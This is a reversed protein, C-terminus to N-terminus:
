SGGATAPTLRRGLLAAGTAICLGAYLSYSLADSAADALAAAIPAGIMEGTPFSAGVLAAVPGPAVGAREAAESLLTMGPVFTFTACGGIVVMVVVALLAVTGPLWLLATGAGLSVLGIGALGRPGSRDCLRGAAPSLMAAVVGALLFTAGIEFASAGLEDLRLPVLLFIAGVVMGPLLNVGTLRRVRGKRLAAPVSTGAETAPRGPPQVRALALSVAVCLVAVAVFTGAVSVTGALTGIMPGILTGVVSAGMVGGIAQGRRAPGAAAIMWTLLVAWLCGAAVGQVFRVADLVAISTALGFALTAAALVAFAAVTIQRLTARAVVWAGLLAGPLCGAAYAGALVGAASKSIGLEAKFYPLLPAAASYLASELAFAVGALLVVRRGLGADPAATV